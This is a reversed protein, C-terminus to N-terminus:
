GVKFRQILAKRRQWSCTLLYESEILISCRLSVTIISLNSFSSTLFFTVLPDVTSLKILKNVLRNESLDSSDGFLFYASFLTSFYFPTGLISVGVLFSFSYPLSLSFLGILGFAIYSSHWYFCVPLFPTFNSSKLIRFVKPYPEKPVTNKARSKLFGSFFFSYANFHKLFFFSTILLCILYVIASNFM